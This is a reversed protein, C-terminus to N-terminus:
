VSVPTTSQTPPANRPNFLKAIVCMTTTGAITVPVRLYRERKSLNVNIISVKRTQSAAVQVIAANAVDAYTDTSGDDSSEQVKADGTSASATTTVVTIEAREYGLCDISVGDGTATALQLCKTLVNETPTHIM